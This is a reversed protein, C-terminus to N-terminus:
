RSSNNNRLTKANGFAELGPNASLVRQAIGGIGGSTNSLLFFYIYIHLIQCTNIFITYPRASLCWFCIM